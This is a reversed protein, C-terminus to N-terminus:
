PVVSVEAADAPLALILGSKLKNPDKVITQNLRYIEIWRSSRGLFRASIESLTEREGVRYAPSGDSLILFEAPEVIKRQSDVFLQPYREELLQKPPTLVVMGPRMNKPERIRHQNFVALASFYRVTGYVRKSITTYNDGNQVVVSDFTSGDDPAPEATNNQYNFAALSFKGDSGSGAATRISSKGSRSGPQTVADYGQIGFMNGKEGASTKPTQAPTAAAASGRFEPFTEAPEAVPAQGITVGDEDATFGGSFGNDKQPELMALLMPEEAANEVAQSESDMTQGISEFQLEPVQSPASEPFSEFREGVVATVDLSRSPVTPESVPLDIFSPSDVGASEPISSQGTDSPSADPFAVEQDVSRTSKASSPNAAGDNAAVAFFPPEEVVAFAPESQDPQLTDVVAVTSDGAESPEDFSFETAVPETAASMELASFPSGDSLEALNLLPDNAVSQPSQRELQTAVKISQTPQQAEATSPISAQTLSRQHMDMKHYVLFGFAFVLITIVLIGLRAEHRVAPSAIDSAKLRSV